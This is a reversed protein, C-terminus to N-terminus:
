PLCYQGFCCQIDKDYYLPGVGPPEQVIAVMNQAGVSRLAYLIVDPFAEFDFALVKDAEEVPLIDFTAMQGGKFEVAKQIARYSMQLGDRLNGHGFLRNGLMDPTYPIVAIKM